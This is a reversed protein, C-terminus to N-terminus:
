KLEQAIRRLILTSLDYASINSIHPIGRLCGGLLGKAEKYEETTEDTIKMLYNTLADGMSHIAAAKVVDVPEKIEGVKYVLNSISRVGPKTQVLWIGDSIDPINYGVAEYRGNKKKRYIKEM